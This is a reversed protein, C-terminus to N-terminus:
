PAEPDDIIIQPPPSKHEAMMHKKIMLMLYYNMRRFSILKSEYMWTVKFKHKCGNMPCGLAMWPTKGDDHFIPEPKAVMM